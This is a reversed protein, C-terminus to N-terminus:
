ATACSASPLAEDLYSRLQTAEVALLLRGLRDADDDPTEDEAPTWEEGNIQQSGEASVTSGVPDERDEEPKAVAVRGDVREDVSEAGLVEAVRELLQQPATSVLASRLQGPEDTSEMLVVVRRIM